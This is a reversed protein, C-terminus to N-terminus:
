RRRRAAGLLGVMALSAAGPAPVLRFNDVDLTVEIDQGALDVPAIFGIQIWQVSSFIQNYSGGGLSLIDNNVESVDFTITTWTNAAVSNNNDVSAGPTNPAFGNTAYRSTFELDRGQLNHRVDFSVQTIGADIWNGFLEGGSANNTANARIFTSPFPGAVETLNYTTSAYSSGDISGSAVFSANQTSNFNIWNASDADFSEVFGNTAATAAATLTLTLATATIFQM